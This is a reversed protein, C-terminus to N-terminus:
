NNDEKHKEKYIRTNKTQTEPDAYRCNEPCYDGDVDIRDISWKNRKGSPLPEEKYGNAYAWDYFAKFDNLWEDCEKIGRGGYYKYHTSKPNYCRKKLVLGYMICALQVKEM